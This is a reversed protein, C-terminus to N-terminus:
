KLFKSSYTNLLKDSKIKYISEINHWPCFEFINTEIWNEDRRHIPLSMRDYHLISKSTFKVSNEWRIMLDRCGDTYAIESEYPLRLRDLFSKGPHYLPGIDPTKM